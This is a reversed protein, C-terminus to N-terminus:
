FARVAAVELEFVRVRGTQALRDWHYSNVKVITVGSELLRRGLLLHRGLDHRGYREVDRAAYTSEDFLEQRTMLQAAMDYAHTSADNETQRRGKM